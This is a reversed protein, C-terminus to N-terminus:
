ASDILHMAKELSIRLRGFARELQAMEGAGDAQPVPTSFDGTSVRDMANAMQRLPRVVLVYLFANVGLLALAFGAAVWTMMERFLHQTLAEARALPVSVIQAAVVEGQQWGFGNNRGYLALLSAPAAQATGHCGLCEAGAQIPRAIYLSRGLPTDREGSLERVSPDGRFRQVIDAEWDMARDRPNTPNLTAEKYSYDPHRAHIQLFDQTAAYSPVTQPLFTDEMHRQLLPGVERATYARIALVGDMMLRAEALAQAKGGQTLLRSSGLGVATAALLFVVILGLNIRPLLGM